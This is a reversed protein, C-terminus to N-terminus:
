FNKLFVTFNMYFFQHIQVRKVQIALGPVLQLHGRNRVGSSSGGLFVVVVALTINLRLNVLFGCMKVVYRSNRRFVPEVLACNQSQHLRPKQVPRDPQGICPFTTDSQPFVKKGAPGPQNTRPRPFTKFVVFKAALKM